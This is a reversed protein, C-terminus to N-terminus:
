LMAILTYFAQKIQDFIPSNFLSTIAEAFSLKKGNVSVLEKM